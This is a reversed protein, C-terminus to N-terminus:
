RSSYKTKQYYAFLRVGTDISSVALAGVSALLIPQWLVLDQTYSAVSRSISDVIIAAAGFLLTRGLSGYLTSQNRGIGYTQDMWVPQPAIRVFEVPESFQMTLSRQGEGEAYLVFPTKQANWVLPSMGTPGGPISITSLHSDSVVLVPPGDIQSISLPFEVITGAEVRQIASVDAYGPASATISYTGDPLPLFTDVLPFQKGDVAVSIGPVTSAFDVLGMGTGSYHDLLDLFVQPLLAYVEFPQAVADFLRTHEPGPGIYQDIRVRYLSNFPEISCILLVDLRMSNKIYDLVVPDGSSASLSLPPEMTITEWEVSFSSDDPEEIPDPETQEIYGDSTSLASHLAQLEQLQKERTIRQEGLYSFRGTELVDGLHFSVYRAIRDGFNSQTGTHDVTLFGFRLEQSYLPDSCLVLVLVLILNRTGGRGM